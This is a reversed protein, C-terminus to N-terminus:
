RLLGFRNSGRHLRWETYGGGGPDGAVALDASVVAALYLSGLGLPVAVGTYGVGRHLRCPLILTRMGAHGAEHNTSSTTETITEHRSMKRRTLRSPNSGKETITERKSM